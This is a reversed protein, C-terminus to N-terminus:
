NKVGNCASLSVCHEADVVVGFIWEEGIFGWSRNWWKVINGEIEGWESVWEGNKGSETWINM